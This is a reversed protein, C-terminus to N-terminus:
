LKIFRDDPLLNFLNLYMQMPTLKNLKNNTLITKKILNRVDDYNNYYNQLVCWIAGNVYLIDSKYDQCFILQSDDSRIFKVDVNKDLSNLKMKRMHQKDYIMYIIDESEVHRFLICDNWYNLLLEDPKM